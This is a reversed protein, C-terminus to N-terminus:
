DNKEGVITLRASLQLIRLGCSNMWLIIIVSWRSLKKSHLLSTIDSTIKQILQFTLPKPKRITHNEPTKLPHHKQNSSTSSDFSYFYIHSTYRAIAPYHYMKNIYPCKNRPRNM